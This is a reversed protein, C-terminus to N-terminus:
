RPTYQKLFTNKHLVKGNEFTFLDTGRVVRKAGGKATWEFDWECYGHDGAMVLPGASVLHGDPFTSFVRELASRIATAGTHSRGLREPGAAEHYTGNPAFAAVIEEIDQNNWAESLREITQENSM